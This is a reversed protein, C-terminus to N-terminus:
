LFTPADYRLGWKGPTFAQMFMQSLLHTTRRDTFGDMVLRDM